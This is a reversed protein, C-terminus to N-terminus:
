NYTATLVITGTYTGAAQAGDPDVTGGIFVSMDGDSPFTITESANPDFVNNGNSTAGDEWNADTTSFSIPLNNGGSTLNTPLTFDLIVSAGGGGSINFSGGSGYPVSSLIGPTVNGFNLPSGASVDLQAIVTANAQINDNDSQGQASAVTTLGAIIFTILTIQLLRKM